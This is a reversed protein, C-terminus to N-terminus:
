SRSYSVKVAGVRTSNKTGVVVLKSGHVRTDNKVGMVCLLSM